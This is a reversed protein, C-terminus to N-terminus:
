EDRAPSFTPQTKEKKKARKRRKKRRFHSSSSASPNRVFGVGRSRHANLFTGEEGSHGNEEGTRSKQFRRQNTVEDRIGNKYIINHTRHHHQTRYHRFHKNREKSASFNGKLFKLSFREFLIDRKGRRSRQERQKSLKTSKWSKKEEESYLVRPPAHFVLRPYRVVRLLAFADLVLKAHSYIDVSKQLYNQLTTCVLFVLMTFMDHEEKAFVDAVKWWFWRAPEDDEDDERPFNDALVLNCGFWRRPLRFCRAFLKAALLFAVANVV